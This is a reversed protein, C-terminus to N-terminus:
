SLLLSELYQESDSAGDDNGREVMAERLLVLLQFSQM